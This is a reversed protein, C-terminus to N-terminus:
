RIVLESPYPEVGARLTRPPARRLTASTPAEGVAKAYRVNKQMEELYLNQGKFHRGAYEYARALQLDLRKAATLYFGPTKRVLDDGSSFVVQTRGGPLRRRALGGLVFEPYLRDRCKELYCRDSMQAIIDATGLMQGVRRLLTDSLRITEVPREYGTYHVLAAGSAAYRRLGIRPLYRRLHRSGRSVHTLTYEAGYRHRRDTRRRLYGFDHFLASVVGLSFGAAPLAPYGNRNREYGDMLRAMALTVDLVHQIDHYETDCPEYDPHEGAYLRGIDAFGRGIAGGATGNYLGKYLRMVEGSVQKLDTTRIRDTVDHDNRRM